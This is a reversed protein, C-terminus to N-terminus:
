GLHSGLVCREEEVEEEGEAERWQDTKRNRRGQMSADEEEEQKQV